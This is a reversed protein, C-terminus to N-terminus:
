SLTAISRDLTAKITDTHQDGEHKQRLRNGLKVGILQTVSLRISSIETQVQHTHVIWRSQQQSVAMLVGASVIVGLMAAFGVALFRGIASRFNKHPETAAFM